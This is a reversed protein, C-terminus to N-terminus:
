RNLDKREGSVMYIVAEGLNTAHDAVRELGHLVLHGVHLGRPEEAQHRRADIAQLVLDVARDGIGVPGSELEIM